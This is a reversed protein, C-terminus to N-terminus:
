QVREIIGVDHPPVVQSGDNWYAKYGNYQPPNHSATVVVGTDAGLKRVAFSLEPTPRLSPFLYAKIGNAAFVLATALAFDASRRRSDHAVCASLAKGPFQEKLYDCLGQTAKTVVLTNMRNFGGGIVGRLGGTGFELDRYFRDELEKEDNKALLDRVEAAFVPDKEQAVYSAAREILAIKEM